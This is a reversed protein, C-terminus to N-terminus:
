VKLQPQPQKPLLLDTVILLYSIPLIMKSISKLAATEAKERIWQHCYNGGSVTSREAEDKLAPSASCRGASRRDNVQCAPALVGAVPKGTARKIM